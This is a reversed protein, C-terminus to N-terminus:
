IASMNDYDGNNTFCNRAVQIKNRGLVKRARIEDKEIQRILSDIKKFKKEGRLKRIFIIEIDRGYIREKFNFIHVEITPEKDHGYNYFTPKIGINLVGNYINKKFVVKVAYVGSPPIAEHHPNINATPYGLTRALKAGGIVTGLISFPRGLLQSARAIDGERILRRIITSSIVLGKKKVPRVVKLKIFYKKTIDALKKVGSRAGKGFCFDEGVIIEKASLDRIVADRIFKEPSLNAMRKNFKIVLVKDIGIRKILDIRHKLSILSPVFHKPNLVKLPHPDFTVVISRLGAAKAERVVTKIVARHGIHVGDFVGIAVVSNKTKM